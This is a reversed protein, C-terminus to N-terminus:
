DHSESQNRVKRLYRLEYPRNNLHGMSGCVDERSSYKKPLFRPQASVKFRLSPYIHKVADLQACESGNLFM